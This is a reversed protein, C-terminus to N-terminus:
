PPRPPHERFKRVANLAHESKTSVFTCTFLRASVAVYLFLPMRIALPLTAGPNTCLVARCRREAITSCQKGAVCALREGLSTRPMCSHQAHQAPQAAGGCTRTLSPASSRAKWCRLASRRSDCLAWWIAMPAKAICARGEAGEERSRKSRKGHEAGQPAFQLFFPGPSSAASLDMHCALREALIADQRRSRM